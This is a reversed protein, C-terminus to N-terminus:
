EWAAVDPLDKFMPPHYSQDTTDAGEWDIKKVFHTWAMIICRAVTGCQSASLVRELNEQSDGLDECIPSLLDGINVDNNGTNRCAIRYQAEIEEACAEFVAELKAKGAGFPNGADGMLRMLRGVNTDAPDVRAILAELLTTFRKLQRVVDRTTLSRCSVIGSYSIPKGAAVAEDHKRQWDFLYFDERGTEAKTIETVIKMLKDFEKFDRPTPQKAGVTFKVLDVLRPTARPVLGGFAIGAVAGWWSGTQRPHWRRATDGGGNEPQEPVTWLLGTQDPSGQPTIFEQHYYNLISSSSPMAQLCDMAPHGPRWVGSSAQNQTSEPPNSDCLPRGRRVLDCVKQTVAITEIIDKELPIRAFPLCGCAMHKAFLTSYGSGGKSASASDGSRYVMRMVTMGRCLNSLLLLGYGGTGSPQYKLHNNLDIGLAFSLAALEEETIKVM